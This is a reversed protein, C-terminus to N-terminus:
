CLLSKGFPEIRDVKQPEDYINVKLFSITVSSRNQYLKTQNLEKRMM